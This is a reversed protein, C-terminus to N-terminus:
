GNDNDGYATEIRTSCEDCCLTHDDYNIRAMMRAQDTDNNACPPCLTNSERDLSYIPYGGPWAYASLQGDEDRPLERKSM